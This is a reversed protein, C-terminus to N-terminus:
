PADHSVEVSNPQTQVSSSRIVDVIRQLEDLPSETGRLTDRATAGLLQAVADADRDDDIDIGRDALWTAALRRVRRTALPLARNNQPSVSWALRAVPSIVREAEARPPPWAANDAAVAIGTALTVAGILLGWAAAFLPDVGFFWALVGCGLTALAALVIRSTKM